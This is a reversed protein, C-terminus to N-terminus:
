VAGLVMRVIDSGDTKGTAFDHTMQELKAALVLRAAIWRADASTDSWCIADESDSPCVSFKGNEVQRWGTHLNDM